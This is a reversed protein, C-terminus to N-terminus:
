SELENFVESEAFYAMTYFAPYPIHSRLKGM